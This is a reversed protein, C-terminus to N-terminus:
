FDQIGGMLLLVRQGAVEEAQVGADPSLAPV